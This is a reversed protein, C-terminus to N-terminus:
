PGGPATRYRAELTAIQADSVGAARAADTEAAIRARLRHRLVVTLRRLSELRPDALRRRPALGLLNRLWRPVRGVGLTAPDDREGLWVALTEFAGFDPSPASRVAENLRRTDALIGTMTETDFARYAM